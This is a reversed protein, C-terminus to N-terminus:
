KFRGQIQVEVMRRRGEFFDAYFPDVPETRILTLFHGEFIENSVRQEAEWFESVTSSGYKGAAAQSAAVDHVCFTLFTAGRPEPLISKASSKPHILAFHHTEKSMIAMSGDLSTHRLASAGVEVFFASAQEVDEVLLITTPFPLSRVCAQDSLSADLSM